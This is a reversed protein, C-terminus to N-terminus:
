ETRTALIEKGQVQIEVGLPPRLDSGQVIAGRVWVNGPLNTMRLPDFLTHNCPNGVMPHKPSKYGYETALKDLDSVYEMKCNGYPSKLSFAWYASPKNGATGPLRIIEAPINEGTFRNRIFFERSSWPKALEAITAVGPASETAHPLAASPDPPPSPVDIQALPQASPLEVRKSRLAWRLGVFLLVVVVILVIAFRLAPHTSPPRKISSGSIGPIAPMDAKYRDTPPQDPM